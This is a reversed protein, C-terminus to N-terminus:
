VFCDGVLTSGDSLDSDVSSCKSVNNRRVSKLILEKNKVLERLMDGSESGYGSSYQRDFESGSVPQSKLTDDRTLDSSDKTKTQTKSNHESGDHGNSNNSDSGTDITINHVEINEFEDGNVIVPSGPISLNRKLNM